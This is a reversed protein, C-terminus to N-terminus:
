AFPGELFFSGDPPVHLSVKFPGKSAHIHPEL